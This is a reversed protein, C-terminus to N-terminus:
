SKVHAQNQSHQILFLRSDNATERQVVPSLCQPSITHRTLCMSGLPFMKRHARRRRRRRCHIAIAPVSYDIKILLHQLQKRKKEDREQLTM